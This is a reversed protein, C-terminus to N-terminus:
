DRRKIIIIIIILVGYARGVPGMPSYMSVWVMTLM